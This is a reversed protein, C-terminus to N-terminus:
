DVVRSACMNVTRESKLAGITLPKSFQILEEPHSSPQKAISPLSAVSYIANVERIYLSQILAPM